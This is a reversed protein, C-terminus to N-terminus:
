AAPVPAAILDGYGIPTHDELLRDLTRRCSDLVAPSAVDPPHLAVRLTPLSRELHVRLRAVVASGIRLHALRTAWCIAPARIRHGTAVAWVWWQDEVFGLGADRVVRGLDPGALWAPPVFGVPDLGAAGLVALGRTIRAAAEGPPLSAFEAERKTRGFTRLRHGLSRRQGREDHRLGHLVVEAGRAAHERLAATFAPSDELPWDGHWNPVVLLAYRRVGREDLLRYLRELWGGHAPTVDHM